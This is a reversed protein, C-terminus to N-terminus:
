PRLHQEIEALSAIEGGGDRDLLLCRIGAAEAGAVDEEPTDGVHLAESPARVGALELAADFIAPDPKRAGPAPRPSWATSCGRSGAASSCRAAALRGLQLRLGPDPRARAARGAGARADAYARFRIAAM